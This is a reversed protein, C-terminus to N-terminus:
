KELEIKKLVVLSGWMRTSMRDTDPEAEFTVRLGDKHFKEDLEIPDFKRGDDAVIGWFGGELDLYVIKGSTRIVAQSEPNMSSTEAPPTAETRIADPTPGTPNSSEPEPAGACAVLLLLMPMPWKM